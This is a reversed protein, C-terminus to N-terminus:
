CRRKRPEKSSLADFVSQIAEHNQLTKINVKWKIWAEHLVIGLKCTKAILTTLFTLFIKNTPWPLRHKLNNEFNKIM